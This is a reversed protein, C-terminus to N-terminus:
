LLGTLDVSLGDLGPLFTVAPSVITSTDAFSGDRPRSFVRLVSAQLDVIWYAPVGNRAYLDAKVKVDYALSSDSVEIVWFVDAGTPLASAYYDARPKLVSLDPEPESMMNLRLPLQANVIATDGVARTLLRTLRSVAAYHRTGMPAMEIVEGEILEIRADPAFVGLEGMRHYQEVNLLHRKIRPEELVHMMAAGSLHLKLIGIARATEDAEPVQEWGRLFDRTQPQM